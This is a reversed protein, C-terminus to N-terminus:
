RGVRHDLRQGPEGAGRCVLTQTLDGAGPGVQLRGPARRTGAAVRDGDPLAPHQRGLQAPPGVTVVVPESWDRRTHGDVVWLGATEVVDHGRGAPRRQVQGPPQLLDVGRAPRLLVGD